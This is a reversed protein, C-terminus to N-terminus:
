QYSTAQQSEAPESFFKNFLPLLNATYGTAQFCLQPLTAPAAKTLNQSYGIERCKKFDSYIGYEKKTM